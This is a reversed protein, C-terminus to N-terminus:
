MKQIKGSNKETERYKKPSTGTLKKFMNSDFVHPVAEDLNVLKIFCIDKEAKNLEGYDTIGLLNKLTGDELIYPDKM